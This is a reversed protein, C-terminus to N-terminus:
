NISMPFVFTEARSNKRFNDIEVTMKRRLKAVEFFNMSARTSDIPAHNAKESHLWSENDHKSVKRTRSKAAQLSLCADGPFSM